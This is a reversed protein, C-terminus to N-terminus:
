DSEEVRRREYRGEGKRLSVGTGAGRTRKVRQLPRFPEEQADRTRRLEEITYATDGTQQEAVPQTWHRHVMNFYRVNRM